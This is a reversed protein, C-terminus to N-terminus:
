YILCATRYIEDELESIAQKYDTETQRFGKKVIERPRGIEASRHSKSYM